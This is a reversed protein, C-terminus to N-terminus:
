SLRPCASDDVASPSACTSLAAAACAAEIAASFDLLEVLLLLPLGLARSLMPCMASDINPPSVNLGIRLPNNDSNPPPPLELAGAGSGFYKAGDLIDISPPS